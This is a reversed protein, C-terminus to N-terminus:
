KTIAISTPSIGTPYPSGPVPTLEGTGEITYAAVNGAVNSSMSNSVYAFLQSTIPDIGISVTVPSDGAAFNQIGSAGGDADIPMLAGSGDISYVSIDDSDSNSVYAFLGTPDLTVTQPTTGAAVTGILMLEGAGNNSFASVNDSGSNAVYIFRDNPHVTVAQPTTGTTIKSQIGVSNEM